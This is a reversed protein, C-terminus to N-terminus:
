TRPVLRRRVIGALGVLGTGLLLMSAPEPVDINTDREAAAPLVAVPTTSAAAVPQAQVAEISAPKIGYPEGAVATASAAVVSFGGVIMVSVFRKLPSPNM